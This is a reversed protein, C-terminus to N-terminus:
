NDTIIKYKNAGDETNLFEINGKTVIPIDPTAIIIDNMQVSKGKSYIEIVCIYYYIFFDKEHNM